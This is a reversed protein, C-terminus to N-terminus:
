EHYFCDGLIFVYVAYLVLIRCIFYYFIHLICNVEQIYISVVTNFLKVAIELASIHLTRGSTLGEVTSATNPIITLFPLICIIPFPLFV